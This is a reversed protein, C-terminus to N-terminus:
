LSTLLWLPWSCGLPGWWPATLPSQSTTCRVHLLDLCSVRTTPRPQMELLQVKQQMPARYIHTPGSASTPPALHEWSRQPCGEPQQWGQSYPQTDSAITWIAM